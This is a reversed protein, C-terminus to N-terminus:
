LFDPKRGALEKSIRQAALAAIQPGRITFFADNAVMLAQAKDRSL